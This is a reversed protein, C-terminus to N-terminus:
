LSKKTLEEEEEEEETTSQAGKAVCSEIHGVDGAANKLCSTVM